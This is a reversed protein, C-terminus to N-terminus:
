SFSSMMMADEFADVALDERRILWYALGLIDWPRDDSGHSDAQLLLVWRSAEMAWLPSDSNLRGLKSWVITATVDGQRSRPFGGVRHPAPVSNAHDEAEILAESLEGREADSLARWQPHEWPMASVQPVAYLPRAPHGRLPEPIARPRVPTGAPVYVVRAGAQTTPFAMDVFLEHEVQRDHCFFLLTGGVPLPFGSDFLSLAACDLGVGFSLPAVGDWEPWWMDEPLSPEGGYQGVVSGVADEDSTLGIAPRILQGWDDDAVAPFRIRLGAIIEDVSSVAEMM